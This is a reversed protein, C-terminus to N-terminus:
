KEKFLADKLNSYKLSIEIANPKSVQSASAINIDYSIGISFYALE